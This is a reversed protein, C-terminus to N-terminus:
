WKIIKKVLNKMIWSKKWSKKVIKKWSKLNNNMIKDIENNNIIQNIM